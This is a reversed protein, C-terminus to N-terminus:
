RQPTEIALEEGFQNYSLLSDCDIILENLDKLVLKAETNVFLGYMNGKM